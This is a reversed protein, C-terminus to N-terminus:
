ERNMQRLTGAAQAQRAEGKVKDRSVSTGAPSEARTPASAEREDDRLSGDARAAALDQKVQARTKSSTMPHSKGGVESNDPTFGSTAFAMPTALAASLAVVAITRISM